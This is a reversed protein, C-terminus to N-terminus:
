TFDAKCKLAIRLDRGEGVGVFQNGKMIALSPNRLVRVLTSAGVAFMLSSSSEFLEVKEIPFCLPDLDERYRMKLDM